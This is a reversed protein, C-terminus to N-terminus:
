RCFGMREAIQYYVEDQMAEPLERIAKYRFMVDWIECNEGIENCKWFAREIAQDLNLM